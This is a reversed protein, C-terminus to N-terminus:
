EYRLSEVPNRRAARWSQWSVTLLAIGLAIIGALAFIWWSLETKYAFNQLWQNMAYWAVPSAILFALGVWKIFNTNLMAIIEHSKAGNVKRISIEKTAQETMFLVLGFLGLCSICIAIISFLLVIKRTKNESSYLNEYTEDLFHYEFPFGPSLENWVKEIKVLAAQKNNGNIQINLAGYSWPFYYLALPEIPKHFSEYHFDKVVGIIRAKRDFIHIKTDFISDKGFSKLATENIILTKFADAERDWSFNRGQIIELGYADIFDPDAPLVQFYKDEGKVERTLTVNIQGLENQSASVELIHPSEKLKQKFIKLKQGIQSNLGIHIMNQKEFGIKKNNIYDIQKIIFLTCCILLISIAFQVTILSQRLIKGKRGKSIDDNVLRIPQSNSLQIAPYIGSLLGLLLPFFLILTLNTFTLPPVVLFDRDFINNITPAIFHILILALCAAAYALVVGEQMFLWIIKKKKGGFIKRICVEKTRHSSRATALNIFNIVAITLIFFGILVITYLTQRRNNDFFHLQGMEVIEYAREKARESDPEIGYVQKEVHALFKQIKENFTELNINNKLLLYTHGLGDRWNKDPTIGNPKILNLTSYSAIADYQISSNDPANQIIGTITFTIKREPFKSTYPLSKGLPNQDAFIKRALKESLVLSNPKKLANDMDGHQLKFAFVDFFTSDAYLINNAKLLVKQVAKTHIERSFYGAADKGIRVVHEVEPLESRLVGALPAVTNFRKGSSLKVIRDKKDHFDDYSLEFRVYMVIVIFSAIGLAFGLINIFPPLPKRYLNRITSIM